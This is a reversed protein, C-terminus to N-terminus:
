YHVRVMRAARAINIAQIRTCGQTAIMAILRARVRSHRPLAGPVSTARPIGTATAQHLGGRIALFALIPTAIVLTCGATARTVNAPTPVINTIAQM